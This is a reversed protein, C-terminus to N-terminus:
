VGLADHMIAARDSILNLPLVFFYFSHQNLQMSDIKSQIYPVSAAIDETMKSSLATLYEHSPLGNAGPLNVSYGLFVGFATNPKQPSGKQPLIISKLYEQTDHPFANGMITEEVLIRENGLDTKIDSIKNFASDIAGNLDTVVDAAGFILQHIPLPTGPLSLLHIGSSKSRYSGGLNELEFKSMVKPANLACELFSYLIIEMFHADTIDFGHKKLAAAADLAINETEDHLIYEQRKARSMVYRGLNAKIFKSLEAYDFAYDAVNVHYLRVQSPNPLNLQNPHKVETFVSEFKSSKATLDLPTAVTTPTEIIYITNAKDNFSDVFDKKIERIRNQFPKNEVATVCYFFINALMGIFSFTDSSMIKEKTYGNDFGIINTADIDHDESIVSLFALIVQKQKNSNICPVIKATFYNFIDQPAIFRVAECFSKPANYRGSKVNGQFSDDDATYEAADWDVCRFLCGLFTYQRVSPLLSQCLINIYTGLCLKKM